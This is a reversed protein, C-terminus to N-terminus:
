FYCMSSWKIIREIALHCPLVSSAYFEPVNQSWVKYETKAHDLRTYGQWQMAASAHINNEQLFSPDM